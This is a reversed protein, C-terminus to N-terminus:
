EFLNKKYKIKKDTILICLNNEVLTADEYSNVLKKNNLKKEVPIRFSESTGDTFNVSVNVIDQKKYLRQVIEEVSKSNLLRIMFFNAELFNEKGRTYNTEDGKDDLSAIYFHDFNDSSINFSENTSTNLDISYICSATM